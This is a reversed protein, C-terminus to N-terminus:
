REHHEERENGCASNRGKRRHRIHRAAVGLDLIDLGLARAMDVGLPGRGICRARISILDLIRGACLHLRDVLDQAAGVSRRATRGADVEAGLTM